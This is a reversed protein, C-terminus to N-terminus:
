FVPRPSLYQSMMYGMVGGVSVHCWTDNIVGLVEVNTGNNYKGLSRASTSTEARLNLREGSKQGTVRVVPIASRVDQPRAGVQLFDLQMYGYRDGISVFAWGVGGKDLYEHINVIVGTYYKGMSTGGKGSASVSDRLNLRDSARPNVVIATAIVGGGPNPAPSTGGGSSGALVLKSAQMYGVQNDVFVHHWTTGFGLVTVAGGNKVFGLQASTVSRGARLNLGTGEGNKVTASPAASSVSATTLYREQMYGTVDSGAIQVPAWGSIASGLVYVPVGNYYRGLSPASTRPQTRLNLRDAPNPNSVYRINAETYVGGARAPVACLLLAAILLLPLIRMAQRNTKM